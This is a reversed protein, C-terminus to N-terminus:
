NSQAQKFLVPVQRTAVCTNERFYGVMKMEFLYRLPLIHEKDNEDVIVFAPQLGNLPEFTKNEYDITYNKILKIGAVEKQVEVMDIGISQKNELDSALFSQGQMFYRAEPVVLYDLISLIADQYVPDNKIKEHSLMETALEGLDDFYLTGDKSESEAISIFNGLTTRFAQDRITALIVFGEGMADINHQLKQYNTPERVVLNTGEVPVDAMYFSPYESNFGTQLKYVMTSKGEYSVAKFGLFIGKVTTTEDIDPLELVNFTGTNQDLVHNTQVVFPANLEIEEGLLGKEVSELNLTEAVVMASAKDYTHMRRETAKASDIMTQHPSVNQSHQQSFEM